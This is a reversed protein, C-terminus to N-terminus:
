VEEVEYQANEIDDLLYEAIDESAAIEYAEDESPAIVYGVFRAKGTIEVRYRPM